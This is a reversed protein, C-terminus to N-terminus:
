QWYAAMRQQVWARFERLVANEDMNQRMELFRLLDTPQVRPFIRSDPIQIYKGQEDLAHFTLVPGDLRWVEPLRLAAYIGM